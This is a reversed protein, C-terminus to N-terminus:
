LSTLQYRTGESILGAIAIIYLALLPCILICTCPGKSLGLELGIGWPWAQRWGVGVVVLKGQDSDIWM